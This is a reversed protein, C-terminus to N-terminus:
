LQGPVVHAELCLLSIDESSQWLCGGLSCRPGGRNFPFEQGVRPWHESCAPSAVPLPRHHPHAPSQQRAGVHLACCCPRRLTQRFGVVPGRAGLVPESSRGLSGVAEQGGWPQPGPGPTPLPLVEGWAPPELLSPAVGGATGKFCLGPGQGPGVSSSNHCCSGPHAWPLLGVPGETSGRQKGCPAGQFDRWSWPHPRAPLHVCM